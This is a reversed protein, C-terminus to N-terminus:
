PKAGPAADSGGNATVDVPDSLQGASLPGRESVEEMVAALYETSHAEWADVRAGVVPGHVHTGGHDYRWRILPEDDAPMLSAAHGWYEWLAGGPRTLAHLHSREYPGLRSFLALFQAREVVNVADLQVVGLARAVAEVQAV